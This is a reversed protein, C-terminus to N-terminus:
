AETTVKIDRTMSTEPVLSARWEDLRDQYIILVTAILTAISVEAILASSGVLSVLDYSNSRFFL